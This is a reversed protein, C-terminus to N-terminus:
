QGNEIERTEVKNRTVWQVVESRRFLIRRGSPKYHPIVRNSTMRYIASLTVGLLEACQASTLFEEEQM